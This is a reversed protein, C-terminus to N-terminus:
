EDQGGLDGDPSPVASVKQCFGPLSMFTLCGVTFFLVNSTVSSGTRKRSVAFSRSDAWGDVRHDWMNKQFCSCEM